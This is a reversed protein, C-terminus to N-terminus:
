VAVTHKMFVQVKAVEKQVGEPGGGGHHRWGGGNLSEIPLPLCYRQSKPSPQDFVESLQNIRGHIDRLDTIPVPEPKPNM